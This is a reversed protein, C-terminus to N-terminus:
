EMKITYFENLDEKTYGYKEYWKEGVETNLLKKEDETLMSPHLGSRLSIEIKKLADEICQNITGNEFDIDKYMSEGMKRYKEIDEPSLSNRAADIFPNNFLNSENINM